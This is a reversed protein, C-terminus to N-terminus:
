IVYFLQLFDITKLLKCIYNQTIYLILATLKTFSSVARIKEYIM